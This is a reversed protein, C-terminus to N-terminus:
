MKLLGLTGDGRVPIGRQATVLALTDLQKMLKGIQLNQTKPFSCTSENPEEEQLFLISHDSEDNICPLGVTIM